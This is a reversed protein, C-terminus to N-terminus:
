KNKLALKERKATLYFLRMKFEKRVSAEVEVNGLTLYLQKMFKKYAKNYYKEDQDPKLGMFFKEFNADRFKNFFGLGLGTCGAIAFIIIATRSSDRFQVAARIMNHELITPSESARCLPAAMLYVLIFACFGVTALGCGVFGRQVCAHTGLWRQFFVHQEKKKKKEEVLVGM